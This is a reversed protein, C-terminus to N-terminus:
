SLDITATEGAKNTCAIDGNDDIELTVWDQKNQSYLRITGCFVEGSKFGADQLQVM